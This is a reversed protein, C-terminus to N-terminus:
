SKKKILHKTIVNYTNDVLYNELLFKYGTKGMVNRDSALMKDVCAVFAKIDNSECWYGYGNEQAISGIDTNPDTAAIIPMKAALYSLLRSPYNPITFRHDLFILGVDCNHALKEYDDKPLSKFLSVNRSINNAFWNVIKSFETGDGAIVFHIDERNKLAELCNILFPIGQPKGLNGGYIFIPKDLPLNYKKRIYIREQKKEESTKTDSVVEISNPAVEVCNPAIFDNHELIYKVNAPSMCGIYDSNKYLAIEKRRFLRYVISRTSFMGLDVANQPFIDKLLLYCLANDRKKVFKVVKAFTIPPTTYIVLDFKVNSFYKKVAHKFLHEVSLTAIGKKLLGTNKINATKVHLVHIGCEDHLETGKNQRQERKCILYVEHEKAFRRMLDIHVSGGSFNEFEGLSLFLINM